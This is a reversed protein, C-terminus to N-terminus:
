TQNEETFLYENAFESDNTDQHEREDCYFNKTLPINIVM